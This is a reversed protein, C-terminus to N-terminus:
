RGLELLLRKNEEQLRVIQQGDWNLEAEREYNDLQSRYGEIIQDQQECRLCLEVNSKILKEDPETIKNNM